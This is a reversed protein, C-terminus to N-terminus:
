TQNYFLLNFQVPISYSLSIFYFQFNPIQQLLFDCAKGGQDESPLYLWGLILARKSKPASVGTQKFAPYSNTALFLWMDQQSPGRQIFLIALYYLTRKTCTNLFQFNNNSFMQSFVHPHFFANFHMFYQKFVWFLQKFVYVLCGWLRGHLKVIGLLVSLYFRWFLKTIFYEFVIIKWCM